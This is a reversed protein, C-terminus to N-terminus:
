SFLDGCGMTLKQFQRHYDDIILGRKIIDAIFFVIFDSKSDFYPNKVLGKQTKIIKAYKVM